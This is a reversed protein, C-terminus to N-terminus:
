HCLCFILEFNMKPHSADAAMKLRANM